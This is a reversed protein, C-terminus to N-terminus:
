MSGLSNSAGAVAVTIVHSWPELKGLQTFHVMVAWAKTASCSRVFVGTFVAGANWQNLCTGEDGPRSSTHRRHGGSM